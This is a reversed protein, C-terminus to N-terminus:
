WAAFEMVEEPSEDDLCRARCLQMAETIGVAVYAERQDDALLPVWRRRIEQRDLLVNLARVLGRVTISNQTEDDSEDTEDSDDTVASLNDGSRVVLPGDDTGIRELSVDTLAGELAVLRSVIERASTGEDDSHILWGDAHARREAVEADDGGQFYLALLDLRRADPDDKPDLSELLVLLLADTLEGLLGAQRLQGVYASDAQDPTPPPLSVDGERAPHSETTM